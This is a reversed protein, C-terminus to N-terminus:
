ACRRGVRNVRMVYYRLFALVSRKIQDGVYGRCGSKNNQIPQHVQLCHQWHAFRGPRPLLRFIVSSPAALTAPLCTVSATIHMRWTPRFLLASPHIRNTSSPSYKCLKVNKKRWASQQFTSCISLLVQEEAGEKKM